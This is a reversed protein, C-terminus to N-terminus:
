MGWFGKPLRLKMWVEFILYSGFSGTFAALFVTRWPQPEIVRLLFGMLLLTVVLFGLNEIFLGYLLLAILVWLVKGWRVKEGLIDRLTRAGAKQRTQLMLSISMAGLIIGLWLPYFGPGPDHINGYPLFVAGWCIVGAFILLFFGSWYDAKKM